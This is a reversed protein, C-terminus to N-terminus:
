KQETKEVNNNKSKVSFVEMNIEKKGVREVNKKRFKCVAQFYKKLCNICTKKKIEREHGCYM